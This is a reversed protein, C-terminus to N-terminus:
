LRRADRGAGTDGLTSEWPARRVAFRRSGSVRHSRLSRLTEDTEDSTEPPLFRGGRRFVPHPNSPAPIGSDFLRKTRSVRDAISRDLRPPAAPLAATWKEDSPVSQTPM